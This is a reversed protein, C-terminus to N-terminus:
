CWGAVDAAETILCDDPLDVEIQRDVCDFFGKLGM